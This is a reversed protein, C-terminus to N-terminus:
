RKDYVSVMRYILKYLLLQPGPFRAKSLFEWLQYIIPLVTFQPCENGDDRRSPVQNKKIAEKVVRGSDTTVCNLHFSNISDEESM